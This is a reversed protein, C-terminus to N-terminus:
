IPQTHEPTGNNPRGPPNPRRISARARLESVTAPASGAWARGGPRAIGSRTAEHADGQTQCQHLAQQGGTPGCPNIRAGRLPVRPRPFRSPRRSSPRRAARRGQWGCFVKTSRSRSGPKAAEMAVPPFQILRGNLRVDFPGPAKTGDGIDTAAVTLSSKPRRLLLEVRLLAREDVRHGGPPHLSPPTSTYAVCVPALPMVPRISSMRVRCPEPRDAERGGRSADAVGPRDLQHSTRGSCGEPRRTSAPPQPVAFRAPRRPLGEPPSAPPRRRRRSRDASPTPGCGM